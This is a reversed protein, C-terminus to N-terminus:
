INRSDEFFSSNLSEVYKSVDITGYKKFNEEKKMIDNTDTRYLNTYVRYKVNEKWIVHMRGTDTIGNTIKFCQNCDNDNDKFFKKSLSYKVVFGASELNQKLMDRLTHNKQNM